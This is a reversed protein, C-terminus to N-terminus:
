KQDKNEIVLKLSNLAVNSKAQMKKKFYLENIVYFLFNPLEYSLHRIFQTGEPTQKLEYTLYINSGKTENYGHAKWKNNKDHELVQWVVKDQGLQTQIREKFVDGTVLPKTSVPQDMHFDQELDLLVELSQHHWEHWLVPQTVYSYVAHTPLNIHTEQMLKQTVPSTALSWFLWLFAPWRLAEIFLLNFKAELVRNLQWVGLLIILAGATAELGSLIPSKFLYMTALMVLSLMSFGAYVKAWVTTKPDFKERNETGDHQLHSDDDMCDQPRWGTPKIWLLLKDKISATKLMDSFLMSWHQLNAKIPNLTNLPKTTGYHCPEQDMEPQWSGFLRDWIVLTGGYNRDIYIPNKAHHVRHSSPTSLIGEVFPIKNIAQTHLWFQYMKLIAFQALFVEPPCGLLALPLYFVWSFAYQFASQRLATTLNYEESQHHGVHAGWLFNFEHACRHFWYYCFDVLFFFTVWTIIQTSNFEILGYNQYVFIFVAFTTVKLLADSTLLLLGMSLSNLTDNYRHHNRKKARLVLFEFLMLILFLPIALGSPNFTMIHAKNIITLGAHCSFFAMANAFHSLLPVSLSM